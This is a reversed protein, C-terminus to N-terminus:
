STAEERVMPVLDEPMVRFTAQPGEGIRIVEIRRSPSPANTPGTVLKVIGPKYHPALRYLEGESLEM